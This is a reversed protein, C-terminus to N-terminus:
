KWTAGPPKQILQNQKNLLGYERKVDFTLIAHKDAAHLIQMGYTFETVGDAFILEADEGVIALLDKVKM